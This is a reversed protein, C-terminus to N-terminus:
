HTPFHSCWRRFSHRHPARRGGVILTVVGKPGLFAINRHFEAVVCKEWSYPVDLLVTSRGGEFPLGSM